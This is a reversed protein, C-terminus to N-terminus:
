GSMISQFGRVRLREGEAELALPRREEGDKEGERVGESEGESEGERVGERM